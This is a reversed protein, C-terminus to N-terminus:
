SALQTPCCNVPCFTKTSPMKRNFTAFVIRMWREGAKSSHHYSKAIKNAKCYDKQERDNMSGIEDLKVFLADNAIKRDRKEAIVKFEFILEWIEPQVHPIVWVLAEEDTLFERPPEVPYEILDQIEEQTLM